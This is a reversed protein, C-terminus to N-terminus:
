LIDLIRMPMEQMIFGSSEEISKLTVVEGGVVMNIVIGDATLCTAMRRGYTEKKAPLDYNILLHGNMPPEGSALLPLCTDTVIIVHSRDDDKGVEDENGAGTHNTQNWRTTVQRFKDLIFAREDEALDSYLASYSVFPLPSLSSCLSDLDDRTSCCVVIPFYQRRGVLDLLDVMTQMKFQLRDVALYFHRSQGSQGTHFPPSSAEVTDIAM